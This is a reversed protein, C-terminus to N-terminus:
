RECGSLWSKEVEGATKYQRKLLKLEKRLSQIRRARHNPAYALPTPKPAETGFREAAINVILTTMTELRRDWDGKATM